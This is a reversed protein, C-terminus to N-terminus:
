YYRIKADGSFQMVATSYWTKLPGLGKNHIPSFICSARNSNDYHIKALFWFWIFNCRYSIIHVLLTKDLDRTNQPFWLRMKLYKLFGIHAPPCSPPFGPNSAGSTFTNYGSTFYIAPVLLLLHQLRFHLLNSSGSTFTIFGSTFYIAPVLLLPVTIPPLSPPPSRAIQYEYWKPTRIVHM